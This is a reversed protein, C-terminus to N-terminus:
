GIEAGCDGCGVGPQTPHEHDVRVGDLAVLRAGPAHEQILDAVERLTLPAGFPADTQLQYYITTQETTM